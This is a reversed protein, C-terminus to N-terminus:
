WAPRLRATEAVAETSFSCRLPGRAASGSNACPLLSSVAAPDTSFCYPSAVWSRGASSRNHAPLLPFRSKGERRFCCGREWTAVTSLRYHEFWAAPESPPAARRGLRHVVPAAAGLIANRHLREFGQAILCQVLQRTVVSHAVQPERCELVPDLLSEGSLRRARTTVPDNYRRHFRRSPGRSRRCGRPRVGHDPRQAPEADEQGERPHGQGSVFSKISAM